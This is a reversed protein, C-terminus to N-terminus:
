MNNRIPSKIAEIPTASEVFAPRPVEGTADTGYEM